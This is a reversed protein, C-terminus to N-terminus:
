SLTQKFSKRWLELDAELHASMKEVANKLWGHRKAALDALIDKRKHSSALHINATEWGMCYLLMNEDGSEPLAGIDIRSCDAALRRVVWTDKVSVFPDPCRVAEALIKKYFIKPAANTSQLFFSASPALAKAGRAIRAGYLEAFVVFRERGLSGQGAERSAFHSLNAPKPLAKKLISKVLKPAIAVPSSQSDLKKWFRVPDRLHGLAMRRLAPHNEEVVFASGGRALGETYGSLIAKTVDVLKLHLNNTTVAAYASTALRVLDNAYPLPHAEDFDNVGWVLRGEDDRWTGFNEIHLDAVALVKPGDQLNPCVKPFLQAWRYYTARLFVFSDRAMNEHKKQLHTLDLRLHESLWGEYNRTAKLINM